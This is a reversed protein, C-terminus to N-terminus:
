ANRAVGKVRTAEARRGTFAIWSFYALALSAVGVLVELFAYGLPAVEPQIMHTLDAIIQFINLGAAAIGFMGGIGPRRYVLPVAAIEVILITLFYALWVLSVDNQPRTEFGVPPPFELITLVLITVVAALVGREPWSSASGPRRNKRFEGSADRTQASKM